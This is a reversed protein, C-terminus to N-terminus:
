AVICWCLWGDEVGAGDGDGVDGEDVHLLGVDDDDEIFKSGSGAAGASAELRVHM